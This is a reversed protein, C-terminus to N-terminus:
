FGTRLNRLRNPPEAPVCQWEECARPMCAAGGHACAVVLFQDRPLKRLLELLFDEAQSLRAGARRFVTGIGFLQGVCCTGDRAINGFSEQPERRAVELAEQVVRQARQRFGFSTQCVSDLQAIEVGGPTTVGETERPPAQHCRYAQLPTLTLLLSLPDVSFWPLQRFEPEKSRDYM